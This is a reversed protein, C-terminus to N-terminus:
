AYEVVADSALRRESPRMSKKWQRLEEQQRIRAWAKAADTWRFSAETKTMATTPFNTDNGGLEFKVHHKMRRWNKSFHSRYFIM